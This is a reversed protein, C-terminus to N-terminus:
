QLHYASYFAMVTLIYGVAFLVIYDRLSEPQFFKKILPRGFFYTLLFSFSSINYLLNFNNEQFLGGLAFTTAAPVLVLLGIFLVINKLKKM